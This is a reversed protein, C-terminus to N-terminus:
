RGNTSGKPKEVAGTDAEDVVEIEEQNPLTLSSAKTIIYQRLADESYIEPADIEEIEIVPIIEGVKEAIMYYQLDDESLCLTLYVDSDGTINIIKVNNDLKGVLYDKGSKQPVEGRFYIDITQGVKFKGDRYQNANVKITYAVQGTELQYYIVGLAQKESTITETYIFGNAPVTYNACVYKNIIEDKNHVINEPIMEINTLQTTILDESILTGPNITKAAIPVEVLEMDKKIFTPYLLYNAAAVVLAVLVIVIAKYKKLINKLKM